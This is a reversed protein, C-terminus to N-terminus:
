FPHVHGHMQGWRKRMLKHQSPLLKGLLLKILQNSAGGQPLSCVLKNLISTQQLDVVANCTQEEEKSVVIDCNNMFSENGLCRTPAISFQLKCVAQLQQFVITYKGSLIIKSLVKFKM